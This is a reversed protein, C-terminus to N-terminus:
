LEVDPDDGAIVTGGSVAECNGGVSQASPFVNGTGFWRGGDGDADRLCDTGGDLPARVWGSPGPALAVNKPGGGCFGAIAACAVDVCRDPAPIQNNDADVSFREFGPVILEAAGGDPNLCRHAQRAIRAYQKPGPAYGADLLRNRLVPNLREHCVLIRPNCDIAIGADQLDAFTTTSSKYSYVAVGGAAVLVVALFGRLTSNM